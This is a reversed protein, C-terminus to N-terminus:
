EEEGRPIDLVAKEGRNKMIKDLIAKIKEPNNGCNFFSNHSRCSSALNEPHHLVASIGAEDLKISYIDSVMSRITERHGQGIRHALELLNFGQVSCGPYQCKFGDRSYVKLRLELIELDKRSM